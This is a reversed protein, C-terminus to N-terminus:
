SAQAPDGVIGTGILTSADVTTAGSAGLIDLYTRHVADVQEAHLSELMGVFGSGTVLLWALEPELPLALREITVDIDTLGRECLWTAFTTADDIRSEPHRSADFSLGRGTVENVAQMLASGPSSMAGRQWVTIGARGGPRACSLLHDAGRDMDPLFFVGLVCHVVDYGTGTWTTVDARHTRLQPLTASRNRLRVLLPGALDVADVTGTSGVARASPVASAGAGCCADLVTEGLQPRTHSVTARGIPDWLADGLRVFDDPRSGFVRAMATAPDPISM